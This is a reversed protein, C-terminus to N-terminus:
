TVLLARRREQFSLLSSLHHLLNRIVRHLHYLLEILEFVRERSVRLLRNHVKQLTTLHIRLLEIMKPREIITEGSVVERLIHDERIRYGLKKLALDQLMTEHRALVDEVSELPSDARSKRLYIYYEDM